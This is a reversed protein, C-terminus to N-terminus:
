RSASAATCASTVAPSSSLDTVYEVLSRNVAVTNAWPRSLPSSTAVHKTTGNIFSAFPEVDSAPWYDVWYDYTGRGLVVADQAGIMQGLNAFIEEEVDFLWDGPEEAVGDLSLLEYVVINRM